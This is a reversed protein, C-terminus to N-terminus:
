KLFGTFHSRHSDFLIALNYSVYMNLYSCRKFLFWMETLINIRGPFILLVNLYIRSAGVTESYFGYLKSM